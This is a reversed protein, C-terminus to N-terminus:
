KTGPILHLIKNISILNKEIEKTRGNKLIGVLTKEINFLSARILQNAYIVIDFDKKEFEEYKVHNYTSPVCILTKKSINKKYHKAFKFIEDPQKSKSHIMIGDAGAKIYQEARKLADDLGRDLILSELRAFIKFNESLKSAQGIKIKESFNKISEMEQKVDNGFLSNKKLGKKDEIIVASVGAMDMSKVFSGFYEPKGGTDGDMILPKSTTEFISRVMGLRSHPSLIENDPRGLFTSDSLSSSWFGDFFINQNNKKISTNEALISSIPSHVEVIRLLKDSNLLRDFIEKRKESLSINFNVSDKLQKSSIGKTHSVEILNGGYSELTKISENRNVPDNTKWDDGHIMYDPKIKKLNLSYGWENQPVVRDVGKINLVIKKREEYKLYPLAKNKLIASDTLLGVVVSGYKVAEEIIKIHGHHIFDASLGFYVIKKKKM